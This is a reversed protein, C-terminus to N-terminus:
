PRRLLHVNGESGAPADVATMARDVKLLEAAVAIAIEAPRKGGVGALGIPCTLRELLSDPMGAKRMLREFRRRKSRSGILGAYAFDGRRLIAECIGYDLPHSHTMVLYFASPPMAAVERVPDATGIMVVNGPAAAPFVRRRTDIWRLECDLGAMAAVVASGVHGAGFLAISMSPPGVPELLVTAAGGDRTVLEVRRAAAGEELLRRASANVAHVELLSTGYTRYKGVTVLHKCCCGGAPPETVVVAPRRQAHHDVLDEIWATDPGVREFLVEAVGGCCQGLGPGLPFRAAFASCGDNRGPTLADCALRTCEHELRGGGISGAIGERDVLMKAGVERPASGRVSTVTVLVADGAAAPRTRLAELWAIM